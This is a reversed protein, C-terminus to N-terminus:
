LHALEVMQVLILINFTVATVVLTIQSVLPVDGSKLYVNMIAM